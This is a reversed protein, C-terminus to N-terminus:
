SITEAVIATVVSIMLCKSRIVGMLVGINLPLGRGSQSLINVLGTIIPKLYITHM